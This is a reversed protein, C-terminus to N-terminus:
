NCTYVNGPTMRIHVPQMNKPDHTASFKGATQYCTMASTKEPVIKVLGVLLFGVAIVGLVVASLVAYSRWRGAKVEPEITAVAM